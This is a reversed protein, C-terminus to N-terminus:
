RRDTGYTSLYSKSNKRVIESGPTITINGDIHDIALLPRPSEVSSDPVPYVRYMTYTDGPPGSYASKIVNGSPQTEAPVMMGESNINFAGIQNGEADFVDLSNGTNKLTAGTLEYEGDQSFDVFATLVADANGCEPCDEFIVDAMGCGSCALGGALTGAVADDNNETTKSGIGYALIVFMGAVLVVILVIEGVRM